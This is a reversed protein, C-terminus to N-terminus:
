EFRLLFYIAPIVLCDYAASKADLGCVVINVQQDKDKLLFIPKFRHLSTKATVIDGSLFVCQTFIVDDVFLYM